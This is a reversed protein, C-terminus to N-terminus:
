LEGDRVRGIRYEVLYKGKMKINEKDYGYVYLNSDSGLM